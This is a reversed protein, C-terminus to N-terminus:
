PLTLGTCTEWLTKLAATFADAQTTTMAVGIHASGIQDSSFNAFNGSNNAAMVQANITPYGGTSSTTNTALSTVGGSRRVRSYRSNSATESGIYIGNFNTDSANNAGVGFEIGTTTGLRSLRLNKRAPSVQTVGYVVRFGTGVQSAYVLTSLSASGDVLGLTDPSVGLDFRGTTGNGQIFGAGHTVGGVFTGSATTILDVANPAAVGWIPLYFRKIPTYFGDKKATKYFTNIANRQASTVTAGASVITNIYAKADPDIGAVGGGNLMNGLVYQM